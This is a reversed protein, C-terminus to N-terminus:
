PSTTDPYRRRHTQAQSRAWPGPPRCSTRHQPYQVVTDAFHRVKRVRNLVDRLERCVCTRWARPRPRPCAESPVACAIRSHAGQLLSDEVLLSVFILELEVRARQRQVQRPFLFALFGLLHLVLVRHLWEQSTPDAGLQLTATTGCSCDVHNCQLTVVTDRSILAAAM